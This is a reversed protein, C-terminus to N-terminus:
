KEGGERDTMINNKQHKKGRGSVASMLYYHLRGSLQVDGDTQSLKEWRIRREERQREPSMQIYLTPAPQHLRDSIDSQPM